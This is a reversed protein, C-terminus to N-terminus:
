IFGDENILSELSYNRHWNFIGLCSQFIDATAIEFVSTVEGLANILWLSLKAAADSNIILALIKRLDLNVRFAEWSKGGYRTVPLGSNLENPGQSAMHRQLHQCCQNLYHGTAQRCLAMVQVLTSKDDTLDQPMWRLVNDHSSKFICFFYILISSSM